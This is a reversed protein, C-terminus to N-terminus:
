NETLKSFNNSSREAGQHYFHATVSGLHFHLKWKPETVVIQPYKLQNESNILVSNM